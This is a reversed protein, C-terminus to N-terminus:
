HSRVLDGVHRLQYASITLFNRCDTRVFFFVWLLCALACQFALLSLRLDEPTHYTPPNKGTQHTPLCCKQPTPKKELLNNMVWEIEQKKKKEEESAPKTVAGPGSGGLRQKLVTMVSLSFCINQGFLFNTGTLLAGREELFSGRAVLNVSVWFGGETNTFFYFAM